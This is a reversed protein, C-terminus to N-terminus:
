AEGTEGGKVGAYELTAPADPLLEMADLPELSVTLSGTAADAPRPGIRIEVDQGLANLMRFLRDLTFGATAGRLLKTLAPRPVGMREAARAQTLGEANIVQQVRAVAYAKALRVEPEPLGLDAFVNGSGEYVRVEREGEM